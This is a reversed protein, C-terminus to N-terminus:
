AAEAIIAPRQEDTTEVTNTSDADSDGGDDMAAHDSAAASSVQFKQDLDL